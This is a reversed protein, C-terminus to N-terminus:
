NPGGPVGASWFGRRAAHDELKNRAEAIMTAMEDLKRRDDEIERGVADMERRMEDLRAAAHADLYATEVASLKRGLETVV